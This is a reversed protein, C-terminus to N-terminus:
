AHYVYVAVLPKPNSQTCSKPADITFTAAARSRERAYTVAASLQGVCAPAAPGAIGNSRKERRDSFGPQPFEFM